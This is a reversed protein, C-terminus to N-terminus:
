LTSSKFDPSGPELGVRVVLSSNNEHSGIEVARDHKYIALQDAEWWNANILMNHKTSLSTEELELPTSTM